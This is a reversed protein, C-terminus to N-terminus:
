RKWEGARSGSGVCGRGKNKAAQLQLKREIMKTVGIAEATKLRRELDEGKYLKRLRDQEPLLDRKL